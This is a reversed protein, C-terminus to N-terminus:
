ISARNGRSKRPRSRTSADSQVDAEQERSLKEIAAQREVQPSLPVASPKPPFQSKRAAVFTKWSATGRIQSESTRQGPSRRRVEDTLHKITISKPNRKAAARWEGMLIKFVMADAQQKTLPPLNATSKKAQRVEDRPVAATALECLWEYAAHSTVPARPLEPISALGCNRAVAHFARVLPGAQFLPTCADSVTVDLRHESRLEDWEAVKLMDEAAGAAFKALTEIQRIPKLKSQRGSYWEAVYNKVYAVDADAARAAEPSGPHLITGRRPDRAFQAEVYHVKLKGLESMLREKATELGPLWGEDETNGSDGDQQAAPVEHHEVGSVEDIEANGADQAAVEASM